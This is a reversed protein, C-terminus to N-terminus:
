PNVMIMTTTLNYHIILSLPLLKPPTNLSIQFKTLSLFDHMHKQTFGFFPWFRSIQETFFGRNKLVNAVSVNVHQM